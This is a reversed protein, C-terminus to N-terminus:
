NAYCSTIITFWVEEASYKKIIYKPLKSTEYLTKFLSFNLYKKEKFKDLDNETLMNLLFNKFSNFYNDIGEKSEMDDLKFEPNNTLLDWVNKKTDSLLSENETLFMINGDILDAKKFYFVNAFLYYLMTSKGSGAQGNIYQPFKFKRLFESQETTLSLNSMEASKEIAFWLEDDSVTWKPYTRYSVKSISDLNHEFEINTSKLINKWHEKQTELHSANHLIIYIKNDIEVPSYLIGLNYKEYRYLDTKEEEGIYPENKIEEILLRFTNVYKDLMGDLKNNSLAYKVWQETEFIENNLELSIGEWV